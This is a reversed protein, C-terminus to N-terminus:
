FVLQGRLTFTNDALTTPMGNAGIGLPNTNIDYEVLLRATEYRLMGMLALTTYTRNIPVLNLPQQQYTDSNPNYSDYRAGIAGWKTLEQTAGIYWGFERLNHGAGIPDAVELGRDLNMADVIEGRFSLDGLPAIRVILRVDGAVAWRSFEQSPTAPQGGIATIENPEVLGDGNMDQWVLVNGSAPTGPHFGTGTDASTGAQLRVGPVIEFDVGIRGVVDKSQVPDLAPFELDGLPNGNMAAVAFDLFRYRAKLRAGLDNEGPFLANIVTARELFPRVYDFEQNEFGFPIRMLGVSCLVDPLHDDPKEPWHLSVEADFPRVQVGNTTNADIELVGELIGHKADVRLHGRRLTFRDQNLPQGTSGSVQDQSEQDVAIWDIQVFGSVRFPPNERAHKEEALSARLEDIAAAQRALEAHLAPADDAAPPPPILPPPPPPSPSPSGPPPPADEARATMAFVTVFLAGLAAVVRM